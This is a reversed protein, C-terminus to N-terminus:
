TTVKFIPPNLTGLNVKVIKTKIASNVVALNKLHGPHYACGGGGFLNNVVAGASGESPHLPTKHM